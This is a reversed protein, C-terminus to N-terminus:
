ELCGDLWWPPLDRYCPALLRRWNELLFTSAALRLLPLQKQLNGDFLNIVRRVQNLRRGMTQATPECEYTAAAYAEDLALYTAHADMRAELLELALNRHLYPSYTDATSELETAWRTAEKLLDILEAATQDFTAPTLTFDQTSSLKVGFLRCRGLALALSLAHANSPSQECLTKFQILQPICQFPDGRDISPEEFIDRFRQRTITIPKVSSKPPTPSRFLNHATWHMSNTPNTSTPSFGWSTPNLFQYNPNFNPNEGTPDITIFARVDANLRAYRAVYTRAFADRTLRPNELRSAYIPRASAQLVVSSEGDSTLIAFAGQQALPLELLASNASRSIMAFALGEATADPGDSSASPAAHEASLRVLNNLVCFVIAHDVDACSRSVVLPLRKAQSPPCGNVVAEWPIIPVTKM